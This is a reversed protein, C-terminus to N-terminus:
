LFKEYHSNTNEIRDLMFELSKANLITRIDKFEKKVTMYKLGKMFKMLGHPLIDNQFKAGIINPDYQPVLLDNM